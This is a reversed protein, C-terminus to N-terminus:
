PTTSTRETFEIVLAIARKLEPAPPAVEVTAQLLVKRVFATANMELGLERRAFEKFNERTSSAEYATVLADWGRFRSAVHAVAGAPLACIIDHLPLAVFQKQAAPIDRLEAALKALQREERTAAHGSIRAHNLDRVFPDATRDFMVCVPLGLSLLLQADLLALAESAGRFALVRVRAAELEDGFFHDVVLQDHLGEVILFGRTLQLLDSRTLGAAEGALDLQELIRAGLVSVTSYGGIRRVHAYQAQALPIDLFAPSHSAAVVDNGERAMAALFAAADHQALPHLNREPEDILYLAPRQVIFPDAGDAPNAAFFERELDRRVRRAAEDIAYMTWAAVGSGVMAIPFVDTPTDRPQLSIRIRRGGNAVWDAPSLPYIVISYAGSVFPPALETAVAGVRVCTEAAEPAVRVAGDDTEELWNDDPVDAKWRERPHGRDRLLYPATTALRQYLEDAFEDVSTATRRPQVVDFPRLGGVVFSSFVAQEQGEVIARAVRVLPVEDADVDAVSRAAALVEPSLTELPPAIWEVTVRRVTSSRECRLWRSALLSDLLVELDAVPVDCVATVAEVFTQRLAALAEDLAIPEWDDSLTFPEGDVVEWERPPPNAEENMSEWLEDSWFLWSCGYQLLAALAVNDAHGPIDRGDLELDVIVVPEAVDAFADTRPAFPDEGFAFDILELINTKGADNPGFLVTVPAWPLDVM